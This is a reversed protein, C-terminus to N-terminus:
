RILTRLRSSPCTQRSLLYRVSLRSLLPDRRTARKKGSCHRGVRCLALPFRHLLCLSLLLSCRVPIPLAKAVATWIWIKSDSQKACEPRTPASGLLRLRLHSSSEAAPHLCREFLVPPCRLLFPLPRACARQRLSAIRALSRAELSSSACSILRHMCLSAHARTLNRTLDLPGLLASTRCPRM